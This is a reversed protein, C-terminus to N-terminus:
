VGEGLYDGLQKAISCPNFKNTADRRNQAGMRQRAVPDEALRVIASALASIDGVPVLLGNVNEKVIELNAGVPTTVIPKGAAMAELIARSMGESYSPLVFMACDQLLRAKKAGTVVGLYEYSSAFPGCMIDEHVPFPDEYALPAGTSQDFFVGREGQRLTGGFQFIANPVRTVIQPMARVLDIYGKAKTMHGLFLIRIRNVEQTPRLDEEPPEFPEVANYLVHVREASVLDVFQDRLCDAQVLALSVRSLARTTLWRILPHFLPLNLRLHSGRLHVVVKARFLRSLLITWIDRGIWGVQTTTIPYYVVTPRQRLLALILRSFFSVFARALSADVVGKNENSARHNTQVFAIDFRQNLAPSSLFQRMGLEPGSFPPPFPGVFLVRPRPTAFSAPESTRSDSM